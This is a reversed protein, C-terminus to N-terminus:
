RIHVLITHGFNFMGSIWDHLYNRVLHLWLCIYINSWLYPDMAGIRLDLFHKNSNNFTGRLACASSIPWSEPYCCFPELLIWIIANPMRWQTKRGTTFLSCNCPYAWGAVFDFIVLEGLWGTRLRLRFMLHDMLRRPTLAQIVSTMGGHCKPCSHSSFGKTGM